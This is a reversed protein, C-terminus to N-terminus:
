GILTAVISPGGNFWRDTGQRVTPTASLSRDDPRGFKVILSNYIMVSLSAEM